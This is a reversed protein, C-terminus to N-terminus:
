REGRTRPHDALWRASPASFTGNGARAPIIRPRRRRKGLPPETGRAHPSSGDLKVKEDEFQEREGRTRPHDTPRSPATRSSWGNGARAPIIRRGGPGEAALCATGRAHPSSGALSTSSMIMSVREGRTRPHDSPERSAPSRRSGNGARAPIIRGGLGDQELGVEGNGARAPIIRATPRDAPREAGTGRAHPSSGGTLGGPSAGVGREGRTRPHDGPQSRGPTISTGRGRLENRNEGSRSRRVVTRDISPSASHIPPSRGGPQPFAGSSPSLPRGVLSLPRGLSPSPDGWRPLPTEWCPLPTEWRPLPTEWCPLPTEGVLSLPRGVLSLPRGVLSLPRGVLSLPRGVLSLPRGVLSLPRGVLSLSRGVLSLSRGVSSLGAPATSM